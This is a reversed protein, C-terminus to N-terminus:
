LRDARGRVEPRLRDPRDAARGDRLRRQLRPRLCVGGQPDVQGVCARLDAYFEDASEPHVGLLVVHREPDQRFELRLVTPSELEGVRHDKPISVECTGLELEGRDGGYIREIDQEAPAPQWRYALTLGGLVLTVVLASGLGSGRVFGRCAAGRLCDARGRDRRLRRDAAALRRAAVAAVQRRGLPARDTAYYVKVVTYPLDKDAAPDEETPARSKPIAERLLAQEDARRSRPSSAGAKKAVTKKPRRLRDHSAQAVRHEARKRRRTPRSTRRSPRPRKPSPPRRGTESAASRPKAGCGVVVALLLLGVTMGIWRCTLQM